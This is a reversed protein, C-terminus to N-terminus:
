VTLIFWATLRITLFFLIIWTLILAYFVITLRSNGVAKQGVIFPLFNIRNYTELEIKQDKTARPYFDKLCNESFENNMLCVLNTMRQGLRFRVHSDPSVALAQISPRELLGVNAQAVELQFPMIVSAIQVVIAAVLIGKLFINRFKQNCLISQMFMGVMPILLLNASTVHYRAGWATDGHWFDLQRTLVIHLALNFIACVLYWQIFPSLKRWLFIALVLCPLLLPDYIFISKEPSFLVGFIGVSPPNIFPYNDPLEPLGSWIPDTLLQEVQIKQSSILFSGYRIYEIFCKLIALPLFGLLWFKIARLLKIKEDKCKYAICGLLFLLVTLIHISATSRILLAIGMVIGSAISFYLKERLVYALATAYGLIVFLLIQNNQQHVQAYHLVTTGFLWATSSLAAVRDSFSFLKLLWFCSAVVAVNLPIFILLSVVLNVVIRRIDSHTEKPFLNGLQTGLWDGPLMIMSQGVDYPIYRKNDKGKVGLSADWRTMPKYNPAVLVEETDTWWAHAMQLRLETDIGLNAGSTILIMWLLTVLMLKKSTERILNDM